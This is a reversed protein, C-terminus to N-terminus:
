KEQRFVLHSVKLHGNEEKVTVSSKIISNFAQNLVSITRKQSLIMNLIANNADIGEWESSTHGEIRIEEILSGFSAM